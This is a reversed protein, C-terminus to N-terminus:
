YNIIVKTEDVKFIIAIAVLVFLKTNQPKYITAQSMKIPKDM